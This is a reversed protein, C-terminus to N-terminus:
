HSSQLMSSLVMVVQEIVFEMDHVFQVNGRSYEAGDNSVEVSVSERAVGGAARCSLVSSSLVEAAGQALIDGFRCRAGAEFGRGILTVLAGGSAVGRSPMIVDIHPIGATYEFAVATSLAGSDQTGGARWLQVSVVERKPQELQRCSHVAFFPVM